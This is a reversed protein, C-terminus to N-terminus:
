PEITQRGTSWVHQEKAAAPTNQAMVGVLKHPLYPEEVSDLPKLSRHKKPSGPQLRTWASSWTLIRCDM